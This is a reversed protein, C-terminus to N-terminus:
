IPKILDINSIRLEPDKKIKAIEGAPLRTLPPITLFLIASDELAISGLKHAFKNKYYNYADARREVPISEVELVRSSKTGSNETRIDYNAVESDPEYEMLMEAPNAALHQLLALFMKKQEKARHGEGTIAMRMAAQIQGFASPHIQDTKCFNLLQGHNDRYVHLLDLISMIKFRRVAGELVRIVLPSFDSPNRLLDTEGGIKCIEDLMPRALLMEATTQKLRNESITAANKTEAGHPADLIEGGKLKGAIEDTIGWAPNLLDLLLATAPPMERLTLAQSILLASKKTKKHQALDNFEFTGVLRHLQLLEAPDNSQQAVELLEALMPLVMGSNENLFAKVSHSVRAGKSVVAELRLALDSGKSTVDLIPEKLGTEEEILEPIDEPEEELLDFDFEIPLHGIKANVAEIVELVGNWSDIRSDGSYLKKDLILIGNRAAPGAEPHEEPVSELWPRVVVEYYAGHGTPGGFKNREKQINPNLRVLQILNASAPSLPSHKAQISRQALRHNVARNGAARELARLQAPHSRETAPLAALQRNTSTSGTQGTRTRSDAKPKSSTPALAQKGRRNM